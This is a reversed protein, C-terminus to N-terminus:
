EPSWRPFARAYVEALNLTCDIAPLHMAGHLDSTESLLWQHDSYRVFHEVHPEHQSM